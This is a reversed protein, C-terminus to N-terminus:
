GDAAGFDRQEYKIRNATDFGYDFRATSGGNFYSTQTDLQNIANYHYDTYAGYYITRRSRNGAADYTYQVSPTSSTALGINAVQNRNTYTYRYDWGAPYVLQSRSGDANYDVTVTHTQNLGYSKITATETKKRNAADYTFSLNADSNQLSTVNGVADHGFTQWQAPNNEWTFSTPRNRNDYPAFIQKNGARNTRWDLNGAPDYHLNETRVTNTADLPYTESIKRHLFDFNLTYAANNADTITEITSEVNRGYLTHVEPESASMRWDIAKTLRNMPNVLEYEWSRFANDARTEKKKNSVADYTWEMTHRNNNRDTAIPDNMWIKRNRNDYGFTTTNFRPDRVSTQNGVEDYEFWTGGDDDVSEAGKRVMKSRFNADYDFDTKKGLPSTVRYVSSTTHSVAGAGNWPAYSTTTTENMPNTVTLVRKYEDYTFRARQNPDNAAGPHNEDASWALTGDPNYGSQTYTGDQHQVKTVQGRQNYECATANGRPDIVM